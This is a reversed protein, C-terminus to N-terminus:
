LAIDLFYRYVSKEGNLQKEAYTERCSLKYLVTDKQVVNWFKEAPLAANMAAQLDDRRLNNQPVKEMAIDIAPIAEKAIYIMADFFLYDIATNETSWYCEFAEKLFRYFVHHKWGGLCFTVWQFDSLYYGKKIPSKCTFFSYHFYEEPIPASCFITADLWIGGYQELLCIRLYDALHAIKMCNNKLKELIIPSITLFDRYNKETILHVPHIGANKYISKICQRVLAPANEEGGWWCVWIPAAEDQTEGLYTDNKYREITPELKRKLYRLIFEEKHKHAHASLCRLGARGGIDDLFRLIALKKSFQCDNNWNQATSKCRQHIRTYLNEM